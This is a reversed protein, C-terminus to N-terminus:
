STHGTWLLLWVHCCFSALELALFSYLVIADEPGAIVEVVVVVDVAIDVLLTGVDLVPGVVVWPRTASLVSMVLATWAAMVALIGAMSSLIWAAM